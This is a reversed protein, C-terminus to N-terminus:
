ETVTWMVGVMLGLVTAAMLNLVTPEMVLALGASFVGYGIVTVWAPYPRRRAIIRNLDRQGDAPSVRGEIAQTVLQALPFTQDFRLASGVSASAVPTGERFTPGVVQVNNPLAVVENHQGYGASVRELTQRIFTVPYSASAMAAGLRALFQIRDTAEQM